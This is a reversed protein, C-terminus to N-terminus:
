RALAPPAHRRFRYDNDFVLTGVALRETVAAATALATLPGLQDQFHDPMLLTSYGLAEARQARERWEHADRAKSTIM